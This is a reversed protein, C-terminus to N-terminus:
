HHRVAQIKQSMEARTKVPVIDRVKELSIAKSPCNSACVGCGICLEERLIIMDDSLDESHPWHHYRAEMPCIKVCTECKTCLDNDTRPVFNSKTIANYNQFEKVSRLFGCCCPCCNCIFTSTEQANIAEHVLGAKEAKQMIDLLENFSVKRGLGQSLVIAASSGITVCYNEKTRKCPHGSYKAANRCPCPVVAFLNAKSLYDKLVEYPLVQHEVKMTKNVEITKEVPEATAIVRFFTYDGASLEFSQGIYYLERAAKAAKEMRDPSDRNHNFYSDILGPSFPMIAFSSGIKLLKGKYAMDNLVNTAVDMPVGSLQSIKDVPLLYDVKEFVSALTVEEETFIARLMEDVSKHKPLRFFGENNMTRRLKEYKDQEVL